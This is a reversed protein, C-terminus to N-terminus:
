RNGCALGSGQEVRSGNPPPLSSKSAILGEKQERITLWKCFAMAEQWTVNVVPHDPGQKFGPDKWLTSKLGTAKAFAEFDKVRTQWVAFLVDGVPAFTIGLSNQFGATAPAGHKKPGTGGEPSPLPDTKMAVTMDADTKAVPAPPPAAADSKLPEPKMTPAPKAAAPEPAPVAPPAKPDAGTATNADTELAKQLANMREEFMRKAEAMETRIREQEKLRAQRAAEM